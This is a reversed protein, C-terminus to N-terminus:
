RKHWGNRGDQHLGAMLRLENSVRMAAEEVEAFAATMAFMGVAAQEAGQAVSNFGFLLGKAGGRLAELDDQPALAELAKRGRICMAGYELTEALLEAIANGQYAARPDSVDWYRHEKWRYTPGHSERDRVLLFVTKTHAEWM